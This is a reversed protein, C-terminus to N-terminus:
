ERRRMTLSLPQGSALWSTVADGELVALGYDPHLGVVSLAGLHAPLALRLSTTGDTSVVSRALFPGTDASRLGVIAGTVPMDTASDTVNIHHVGRSMMEFQFPEEPAACSSLLIFLSM